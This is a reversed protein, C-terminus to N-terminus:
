SGANEVQGRLTYSDAGGLTLVSPAAGSNQVYSTSGGSLGAITENNGNLRFWSRGGYGNDWGYMNVQTTDAIQNSSDPRLLFSAPM